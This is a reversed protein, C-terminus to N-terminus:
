KLFTSKKEIKGPLLFPTTQPYQHFSFTHESCLPSTKAYTDRFLMSSEFVKIKKRVM